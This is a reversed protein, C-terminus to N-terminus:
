QQPAASPTSIEITTITVKETPKSKEGGSGTTVPTDALADLTALSASDSADILGFITYNKPLQYDEHMIFFQSGNTNPGSNAMALTGRIYDRNVPEDEFSYGPGGTGDGKPDGTQVMFGKIIRHFTLGNYFGKQSLNIFNSVTKPVEQGFLGAKIVGKSTTITAYATPQTPVFPASSSMAKESESAPKTGVTYIFVFTLVAVVGLWFWKKM